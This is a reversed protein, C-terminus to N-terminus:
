KLRDWATAPTLSGDNQIVSAQISINLKDLSQINSEKIDKSVHIVGDQIIDVDTLATNTDLVKYYVYETGPLHTWGAAMCWDLYIVDCEPSENVSKGIHFTVNEATDDETEETHWGPASVEVFVITDVESADFSLTVKKNLDVGPIIKANKKGGAEVFDGTETLTLNGFAVVRASDSGTSSTVYRAFLGGMMATTILVLCFLVGAMWMMGEGFGMSSKRKRSEKSM